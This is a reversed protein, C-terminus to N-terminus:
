RLIVSHVSQHESSTLKMVYNGMALESLDVEIPSNPSLQNLYRYQVRHGAADFVELRADQLAIDTTMLNLKGDTPNPFLVISASTQIDNVGLCTHTSIIVTDKGTCGDDSTVAVWYEGATSVTIKQGPSGTSWLFTSGANGADLEIPFDVCISRDEGLDVDPNLYTHPVVVSDEFICGANDTVTVHHVGNTLNTPFSSSSGSSWQYFYPPVGGTTAMAITGGFDGECDVGTVTYTAGLADPEAIFVTDSFTCGLSDTVICVADGGPLGTATPTTEGNNWSYNFPATGGTVNVTASGNNGGNCTVFNNAFIDLHIAEPQQVSITQISQCGLSDTVSVTYMGAMVNTLGSVSDGTNWQYTYGGTGSAVVGVVGDSYGYCSVTSDYPTLTIGCYGCYGIFDIILRQLNTDSLVGGNQYNGANHFGLVCGNGFERIAVADNSGHTMLLVTTDTSFSRINGDNHGIASSTFTFSSPVNALVPHASQSSVETLTMSTVTSGSNREFLILDEMNQMQNNQDFQYADWEFHVYLGGTNEVFGALATQGATPMESSYTTGNLHVVVDFNTLPPNTNNWSSESVSSITTPYGANDLANKLSVTNTNNAADDYLILVNNQGFATLTSGMVLALLGLFKASGKWLPKM